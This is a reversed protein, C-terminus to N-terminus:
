PLVEWDDAMSDDYTAIWPAVVGTSYTAGIFPAIKDGLLTTGGSVLSVYRVMTWGPRYIRQGVAVSAAARWYKM